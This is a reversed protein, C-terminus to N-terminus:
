MEKDMKMHVSFFLFDVERNDITHLLVFSLFKWDDIYIVAKSKSSHWSKDYM